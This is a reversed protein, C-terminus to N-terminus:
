QIRWQFPSSLTSLGLERGRVEGLERERVELTHTGSDTDSSQVVACQKTTYLLAFGELRYHESRHYSVSLSM